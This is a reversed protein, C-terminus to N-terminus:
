EQSDEAVTILRIALEMAQEAPVEHDPLAGHIEEGTAGYNCALKSSVGIEIGTHPLSQPIVAGFSVAMGGTEEGAVTGMRFYRFTWALDAAASFTNHSTLLITNGTFRWPNDRLPILPPADYTRIGTTDGPGFQVGYTTELYHMQRRSLKETLSGVQQFPVPSIYQFLEDAVRSDGGGNERIDIILDSAGRERIVRFASDAFRSFRDLAEMEEFHIVAIRNVEDISLSNGKVPTLNQQIRGSLEEWSLGSLTAQLTDSGTRYEVAFVTDGCIAYLLPAFRRRLRTARYFLREGSVYTLMQGVLETSIIQNVSLIEAGGPICAGAESHDARAIVSSDTHVIEVSVPFLRVHPYELEGCPFYVATHGDGLAAVLPAAIRFFGLRTMGDVAHGKAHELREVFEERSIGAFMDPHIDLIISSLSDMDALIEQRTFQEQARLTHLFALIPIILITLTKMTQRYIDNM